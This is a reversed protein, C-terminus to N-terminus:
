VNKTLFVTFMFPNDRQDITINSVAKTVPAVDGAMYRIWVTFYPPSGLSLEANVIDVLSILGPIFLASNTDTTVVVHSYKWGAPVNDTLYVRVQGKSVRTLSDVNRPSGGSANAPYFFYTNPGPTFGVRASAWPRVVTNVNYDTWLETLQNWVQALGGAIPNGGGGAPGAWWPLNNDSDLIRSIQSKVFSLFKILGVDSSDSVATMEMTSQPTGGAAIDLLPLTSINNSASFWNTANENNTQCLKASDFVSIPTVTPNGPNANGYASWATIKGIVTWGDTATNSPTTNAFSIQHRIVKRTQISVAAEAGGSWQVRAGTNADVQEPRALIYPYANAADSIAAAGKAAAISWTATQSQGNPNFAYFGGRWGKATTTSTDRLEPTDETNCYTFPGFTLTATGADYTTKFPSVVGQGYGLIGGLQRRVAQDVLEQLADFDVRDVREQSVTRVRESLPTNSAM